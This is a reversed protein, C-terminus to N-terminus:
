ITELMRFAQAKISTASAATSINRLARAGSAARSTRAGRIPVVHDFYETVANLAAYKTGGIPRITPSSTWLTVIGNAKDRRNKAAAASPADDVKLLQNAFDRMQETDMAEDYLATVAAEFEEIYRWTLKLANRAESISERAGATHRISFSARARSIAIAQTNACVIRIPTVLLRFASSGDHSNLAAIYFETTDTSGDIGNFSMTNPLKLTVFTERGGKLAGATEYHAGGSQDVLADLLDCSSENAVPVYKAGVVGLVDLRGNIPNDRVTAYYDPVALPAPTTVGNEDIVPEQQVHLAMKRVNWNALHAADLAERATMAHGVSQGLQHWHDSRANAFSAAGETIDINHM